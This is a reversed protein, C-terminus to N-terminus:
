FHARGNQIWKMKEGGTSYRGEMVQVQIEEYRQAYEDAVGAKSKLIELIKTYFIESNEQQGSIRERLKIEGNSVGIAWSVVTAAIVILAIFGILIGKM